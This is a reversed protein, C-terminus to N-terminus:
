LVRDGPLNDRDQLFAQLHGCPGNLLLSGSVDGDCCLEPIGELFGARRYYEAKSMRSVPQWSLKLVYMTQDGMDVHLIHTGRGLLGRSLHIPDNSLIKAISLTGDSPISITCGCLSFPWCGEYTFCPDFGLNAPSTSIIVMIVNVFICFHDKKHLELVDSGLCGACDFYWMEIMDNMVVMRLTWSKLANSSLVELAYSALQERPNLKITVQTKELKKQLEQYTMKTLTAM